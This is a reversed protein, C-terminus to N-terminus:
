NQDLRRPLASFLGIPRHIKRFIKRLVQTLNVDLDGTKFRLFDNDEESNYSNFYLELIDDDDLSYHPVTAM